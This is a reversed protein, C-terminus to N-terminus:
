SMNLYTKKAQTSNWGNLGADDLYTSVIKFDVLANFTYQM